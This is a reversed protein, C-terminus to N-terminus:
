EWKFTGLVALVSRPNDAAQRIPARVGTWPIQSFFARASELPPPAVEAPELSVPPRANPGDWPVDRFVFMAKALPQSLVEVAEVQVVKKKQNTPVYVRKNSTPLAATM